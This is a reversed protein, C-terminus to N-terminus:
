PDVWQFQGFPDIFDLFVLLIQFLLDLGQFAPQGRLVQGIQELLDLFDFSDTDQGRL